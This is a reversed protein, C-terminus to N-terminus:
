RPIGCACRVSSAAMAVVNSAAVASIFCDCIATTDESESSSPVVGPEDANAPVSLVPKYGSNSTMGTHVNRTTLVNLSM